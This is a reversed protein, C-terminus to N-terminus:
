SPTTVPKPAPCARVQKDEPVEVVVGAVGLAALQRPVGGGDEMHGEGMIAVVPSGPARARQAAIAEAMARDWVLQADIFHGLREPTMAPGGHGAMADALAARYAANPPVPTGVGERDAVAVGTWGHQSVLHVLRHSVNLAVMPVHHDRAFRFIPLYLAPDFGWYAKWDSQQLFAAETLRGAAWADLAPQASRPFMEFGLVISPDARYIRRIRALEWAHNAASDHHEGLLTVPAISTVPPPCLPPPMACAAVLCPLLLLMKRMPQLHAAIGIQWGAGVPAKM